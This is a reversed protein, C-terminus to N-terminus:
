TCEPPIRVRQGWGALHGLWSFGQPCTHFPELLHVSLGLRPCLSVGGPGERNALGSM